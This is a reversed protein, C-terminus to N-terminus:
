RHVTASKDDLGPVKCDGSLFLPLVPHRLIFWVIEKQKGFEINRCCCVYINYHIHLVCFM